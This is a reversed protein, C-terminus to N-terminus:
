GQFMDIDHWHWTLTRNTSHLSILYIIISINHQVEYVWLIFGYHSHVPRAEWMCLISLLPQFLHVSSHRNMSPWRGASHNRSLCKSLVVAVVVVCVLLQCLSLVRAAALVWPAAQVVDCWSLRLSCCCRIHPAFLFETLPWCCCHCLGAASVTLEIVCSISVSTLSLRKHHKQPVYIFRVCVCLMCGLDWCGGM